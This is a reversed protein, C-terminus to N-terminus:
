TLLISAARLDRTPSIGEGRAPSPRFAAHLDAEDAVEVRREDLAAGLDINAAQGVRQGLSVLDDDHRGVRAEVDRRVALDGGIPGDDIADGGEVDAMQGSEGMLQERLGGEAGDIEIVGLDGGRHARDDTALPRVHDM